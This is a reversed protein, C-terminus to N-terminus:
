QCRVYDVGGLKYRTLQGTAGDDLRLRFHHPKKLRPNESLMTDLEVGDPDKMCVDHFPTAVENKAPLEFAEDDGFRRSCSERWRRRLCLEPSLLKAQQRSAVFYQSRRTM